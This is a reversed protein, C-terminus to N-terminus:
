IFPKAQEGNVPNRDIVPNSDYRWLPLSGGDRREQWPINKLNEGILKVTEM